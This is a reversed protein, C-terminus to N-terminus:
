SGLWHLGVAPEKEHGGLALLAIATADIYPAYPVGFAMGNGASWGGGPCMRDLLMSIGMGIRESVKATRKLRRNSIQRLVIVRFAAPIVWSTPGM